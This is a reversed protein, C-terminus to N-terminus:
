VEQARFKLQEWGEVIADAQDIRHALSWGWLVGIGAAAGASRAMAMDGTADGVMVTADPRVQLVECMQWFCHPDPKRPPQDAGRIGDVWPTLNHYALFQEINPTTDGSVVAVKVPLGALTQFCEATGPILPALTYFPPLHADVEQFAAQTIRLCDFWAYGLAALQGAAGLRNEEGSGVPLLGTPDLEDGRFGFGRLITEGSGPALRDIAAAREQGLRKLYAESRSLTGDKDFFVAEVNPIILPSSRGLGQCEITIM